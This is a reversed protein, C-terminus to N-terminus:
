NCRLKGSMVSARFTVEGLEDSRIDWHADDTMAVNAAGGRREFAEGAPKTFAEVHLEIMRLVHAPRRFRLLAAVTAM